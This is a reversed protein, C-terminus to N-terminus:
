CAAEPRVSPPVIMSELSLLSAQITSFWGRYQFPSLGFGLTLSRVLRTRCTSYGRNCRHGGHTQTGGCVRGGTGYIETENTPREPPTLAAVLGYGQLGKTLAPVLTFESPGFDQFKTYGGIWGMHENCESDTHVPYQLESPPKSAVGGLLSLRVWQTSLRQYLGVRRRAYICILPAIKESPAEEQSPRGNQGRATFSGRRWFM